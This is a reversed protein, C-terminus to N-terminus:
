IFLGMVFTARNKTGLDAVSNGKRATKMFNIVTVDDGLFDLFIVQDHSVRKPIELFLGVGKLASTAASYATRLHVISPSRPVCSASDINSVAPLRCCSCSSSSRM